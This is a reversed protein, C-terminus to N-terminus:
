YELLNVNFEDKLIQFVHHMPLGIVTSPSGEIVNIFLSARERLSYAGARGKWEGSEVYRWINEDSLLLFEIKASDYHTIIKKSTSHTIALGTLLNHTTGMLKKLMTFAERENKAKGIIERKYEVITDAAIIISDELQGIKKNRVWLAKEKALTKVLTIPNKIKEKYPTEDLESGIIEFSIGIRELIEKRDVSKSALVIKRM